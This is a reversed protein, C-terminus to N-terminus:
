DNPKFAEAPLQDDDWGETEILNALLCRPCCHRADREDGACERPPSGDEVGSYTSYKLDDFDGGWRCKPTDCIVDNRQREASCPAPSCDANALETKHDQNNM